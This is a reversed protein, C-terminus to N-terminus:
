KGRRRSCPLNCDLAVNSRRMDISSRRSRSERGARRLEEAFRQLVMAQEFRETVTLQVNRRLITRDVDKKFAEIAPDLYREGETVGKHYGQRSLDAPTLM